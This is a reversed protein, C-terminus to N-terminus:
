SVAMLVVITLFFLYTALLGVSASRLTDYQDEGKKAQTHVRKGSTVYDDLPFGGLLLMRNETRNCYPACDYPKARIDIARVRAILTSSANALRAARASMDPAIPKVSASVLSDGWLALYGVVLVILGFALLAVSPM